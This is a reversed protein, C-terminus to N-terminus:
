DVSVPNFERPRRLIGRIENGDRSTWRTGDPDHMNLGSLITIEHFASTNYAPHEHVLGPAPSADAEPQEILGTTEQLNLSNQRRFHEYGAIVRCSDMKIFFTTKM